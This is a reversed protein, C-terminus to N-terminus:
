RRRLWRRGRRVKVDGFMTGGTVVIRPADGPVLLVVNGFYTQAHIRTESESLTAKRLDLRIAGFYSRFHNEPPVVWHGSRKIDGATKVERGDTARAITKGPLDSTLGTLEGRMVAASAAEIRDGLEDMTLRGEAAAARLREICADRESDSARVDM